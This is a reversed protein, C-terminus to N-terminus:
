LEDDPVEIFIMIYCAVMLIINSLFSLLDRNSASGYACIAFYPIALILLVKTAILLFKM